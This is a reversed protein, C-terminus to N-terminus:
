KSEQKAGQMLQLALTQIMTARTNWATIQAAFEAAKSQNIVDGAPNYIVQPPDMENGQWDIRGGVVVVEGGLGMSPPDPVPGIAEMAAKMVDGPSWSWIVVQGGTSSPFTGVGEGHHPGNWIDPPPFSDSV